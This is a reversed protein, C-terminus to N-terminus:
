FKLSELLQPLSLRRANRPLKPAASVPVNWEARDYNLAVTVTLQMGSLRMRGTLTRCFRGYPTDIPDTASVHGSIEAPIDQGTIIDQLTGVTAYAPPVLASLPESFYIKHFRDCVTASDATVIAYGVEMGLMRLSVYALSDRVMTAKGSLSLSMGGSMSVKVPMSVTTWVPVSREPQAPSPGTVTPKTPRCGTLLLILCLTLAIVARHLNTRKM